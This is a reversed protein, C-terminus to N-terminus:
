SAKDTRHRVRFRRQREQGQARIRDRRAREDAEPSWLPTADVLALLSDRTNGAEFVVDASKALGPLRLVKVV